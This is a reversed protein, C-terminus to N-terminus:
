NYPLQVSKSLPLAFSHFMAMQQVHEAWVTDFDRLLIPNSADDQLDKLMSQSLVSRVEPEKTTGDLFERAVKIPFYKEETFKNMDYLVRTIENGKVALDRALYDRM